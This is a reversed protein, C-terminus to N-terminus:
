YELIKKEIRKLLADIVEPRADGERIVRASGGDIELVLPNIVRVRHGNDIYEPRCEITNNEKNLVCNSKTIIIKGM